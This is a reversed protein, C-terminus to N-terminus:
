KHHPQPQLKRSILHVDSNRTVNSVLIRTVAVLRTRYTPHVQLPSQLHLHHYAATNRLSGCIHITIPNNLSLTAASTTPTAQTPTQNTPMTTVSPMSVPIQHHKSRTTAPPLPHVLGHTITAPILILTQTASSTPLYNGTAISVAWRSPNFFHKQRQTKPPLLATDIPQRYGYASLCFCHFDGGKTYKFNEYGKPIWPLRASPNPVSFLTEKADVTCTM